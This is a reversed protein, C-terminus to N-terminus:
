DAIVPLVPLLNTHGAEHLVADLHERVEALTMTYM